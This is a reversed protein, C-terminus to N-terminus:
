IETEDDDKSNRFASLNKFKKPKDLELLDIGRLIAATKTLNKQKSIRSIKEAEAKSLKLNLQVDRKVIAKPRGITM